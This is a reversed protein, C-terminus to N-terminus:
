NIFFGYIVLIIVIAIVSINATLMYKKFKIRTKSNEVERYFYIYNAECLPYLCGLFLLVCFIPFRDRHFVPSSFMLAIVYILVILAISIAKLRKLFLSTERM